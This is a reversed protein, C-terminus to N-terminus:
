FKRQSLKIIYILIDFDTKSLSCNVVMFTVVSNVVTKFLSSQLM